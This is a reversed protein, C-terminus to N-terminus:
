SKKTGKRSLPLGFEVMTQVSEAPLKTKPFAADTANILSDSVNFIADDVAGKGSVPTHTSVVRQAEPYFIKNQIKKSKRSGPIAPVHIPSINVNVPRINSRLPAIQVTTARKRVVFAPLGTEFSMQSTGIYSAPMQSACRGESLVNVQGPRSRDDTSSRRRRFDRCWRFVLRRSMCEMACMKCEIIYIESASVNEETLFQEVMRQCRKPM